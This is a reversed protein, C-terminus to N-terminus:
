KGQATYAKLGKKWVFQMIGFFTITWFIIITFGKLIENMEAQGLYIKIPFYILYSFPLLMFIKYILAPLINLPFYQGAFFGLVIWFIFRPAWVDPSWFGILGLLINIFFYLIIALFIAVLFLFIYQPNTQLYIPPKILFFILALEFISFLINMLKDGIDKSFWYAFYNIPQLLFNSLNGNNIESGVMYSRNSTVFAGVISTLLIYTLISSQSYGFATSGEPIVALWLFYISLLLVVNRLRWMMFSFRYSLAEEWTNRAARLYKKM